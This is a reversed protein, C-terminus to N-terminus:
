LQCTYANVTDLDSSPPIKIQQESICWNLESLRQPKGLYRQYLVFFEHQM